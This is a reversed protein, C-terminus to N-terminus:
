LGDVKKRIKKLKPKAKNIQAPDIGAVKLMSERLINGFKKLEQKKPLTKGVFIHSGDSLSMIAAARCFCIDMDLEPNIEKLLFAIEGLIWSYYQELLDNAMRDHATFAWLEWVLVENLQENVRLMADILNLFKDLPNILSQDLKEYLLSKVQQAMYKVTASTLEEKTSYYYRLTGAKIGARKAVKEQTLNPWGEEEIVVLCADLINAVTRAGKRSKAVGFLNNFLSDDIKRGIM